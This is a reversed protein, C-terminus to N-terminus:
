SASEAQGGLWHYPTPKRRRDLRQEITPLDLFERLRAAEQRDLTVLFREDVSCRTVLSLTIRGCGDAEAALTSSLNMRM